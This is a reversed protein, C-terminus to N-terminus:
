ERVLEVRRNQARGVETANDGVPRSEGFGVTRLRAAAVGREVLGDRVAAARAESLRQNHDAEGQADTHGEILLKWSLEGALLTAVEDLVARSEARITAADSDFLIGNLQVRGTAALNRHLEGSVSGTWHPCTGVATAKRTGNWRGQPPGKGGGHRWWVGQFAADDSSFVFVAPGDNQPGGDERWTLRMVRGEVTGNLLGGNLEYCGIVASGQQRIHFDNYNTTYTGSVDPLAAGPEATGFGRFGMIETYQADGWNGAITLRLWRGAVAAQAAFHQSDARDRLSARLVERFGTEPGADSVEVVIGKAGRGAGDVSKVDFEFASLTTRSPLELVLAHPGLDGQPSAWGTAPDDDLMAYVDWGGGYSRPEVVAAAGSAPTLRNQEQGPLAVPALVLALALLVPSRALHPM